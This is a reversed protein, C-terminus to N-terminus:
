GAASRSSTATRSRWRSPSTSAPGRGFSSPGLEPAGEMPKFYGLQNIRRISLKLAETNFVDGENLYVERRIVKDRTTHQRHVPDERRLVAQGRGHDPHRGRGQAQPRAEAGAPGDVPLLGPRRLRRAAQRLGEESRRNRTSTARRCSSSPLVLEPKFVTMGEFKVDGIATSTAKASRSRWASAWKTAKKGRGEGDVYSIKPEGVSATVYGHNLYFDELRKQDGEPGSWKEPPTPTRAWCGAWTGSAAGAQDEEDPPRLTGDSFVENGM